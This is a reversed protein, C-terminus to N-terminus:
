VESAVTLNLVAMEKPRVVKGGYVHLGKLADRFGGEPRYAEMGILQDAFTMARNTMAVCHQISGTTKVNNSVFIPFGLYTGSYGRSLIDSNNTDQLIKALTMKEFILPTIAVKVEVGDPINNTQFKRRLETFTELFNASNLAAQTVVIGADGHHGAVFSDATDSLGYSAEQTAASFIGPTTQAADVDDLNFAFYKQQDITMFTSADELEQVTIDTGPVYDGINVAGIGNIKVTDGYAAISGQYDRNVFAGFVHAKERERNVETEWITPIFNKVSM